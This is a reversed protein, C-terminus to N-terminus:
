AAGHVVRLAAEIQGDRDFLVSSGTRLVSATGDDVPVAAWDVGTIGFEVEPGNRYFVRVSQVKGWDEFSFSMIEGFMSLWSANNLYQLPNSCTLVFDIDSDARAAGRAHSGVLVLVRIDDRLEAWSRVKGILSDAIAASGDISSTRDETVTALKRRAGQQM